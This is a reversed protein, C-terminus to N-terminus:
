KRKLQAHVTQNNQKPTIKLTETSFGPKTFRVTSMEFAPLKMTTPTVAVSKGNVAISAGAPRSSVKVSFMMKQLVLRVKAGAETPMVQRVVSGFRLKRVLLRAETGCPLVLKAPTTGLVEKGGQMSVEAGPPVTVIDVRCEAAVEVAADPTLPPAVEGADPTPAAVVRDSSGAGADAPATVVPEDKKSGGALAIVLVIGIVVAVGASIAIVIMRRRRTAEVLSTSDGIPFSGTGAVNAVDGSERFFGVGGDTVLRSASVETLGALEAASVAAPAAAFAGSPPMAAAVPHPTNRTSPIPTPRASMEYIPVSGPIPTAIRAHQPAPAPQAEILASLTARASGAPNIPVLSSATVPAGYNPDVLPADMLTPDIQVKPEESPTVPEPPPAATSEMIISRAVPALEPPTEVVAKPQKAKPKETVAVVAPTDPLKKIDARSPESWGDPSEHDLQITWDGTVRTPKPKVDIEVQPVPELGEDGPKRPEIMPGHVGTSITWDGSPTAEEITPKIGAAAVIMVPTPAVADSPQETVSTDADEIEVPAGDNLDTVATIAPLVLAGGPTVAVGMTTKRGPEPAMPIGTLDTPEDLDPAVIPKKTEAVIPPAPAPADRVTMRLDDHPQPQRVPSPADRVTMLLDDHPKAPKVPSPADRLLEDLPKTPKVPSPADRVTMLDDHEPQEKVAAMQPPASRVTMLLDAPAKPPPPTGRQTMLLQDKSAPPTPRKGPLPPPAERSPPPVAGLHTVPPAPVAAMETPTMTQVAAMQTPTMGTMPPPPVAAMQTPTMTAAAMETVGVAAMQTPTMGDPPRTSAGLAAMEPTIAAVATMGTPTLKVANMVQATSGAPAQSQVPPTEMQASRPLLPDRMESKLDALSVAPMTLSFGGAPTSAQPMAPFTDSATGPPQKPVVTPGSAQKPLPSLTPMPPPVSPTKPRVVPQPGSPTRPRIEPPTSPTKPRPAGVPLVSPMVFKPGAKPPAGLKELQELDGIAVCEARSISADIRASAAPPVARPLAPLEAIRPTVSPAPPKAVLRAKELEILVTKSADDLDGFRIVMGVRGHLVSPTMAPGGTKSSSIVEGDGEIMVAGGDLTVAFRGRRGTPIPEAIPVFLSGRDAYRRFAAVFEEGTSCASVLYIPVGITVEFFQLGAVLFL